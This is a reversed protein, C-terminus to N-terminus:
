GVKKESVIGGGFFAGRGEHDATDDHLSTDRDFVRPTFALEFVLVGYDRCIWIGFGEFVRCDM